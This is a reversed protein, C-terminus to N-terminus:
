RDRELPMMSRVSPVKFTVQGVEACILVTYCHADVLGNKSAEDFLSRTRRWSRARAYAAMIATYMAESALSLRRALSLTEETLSFNRDLLHAKPIEVLTYGDMAGREVGWELLQRSIQHHHRRRLATAMQCLSLALYSREAKAGQIFVLCERVQHVLCMVDHASQAYDLSHRFEQLAKLVANRKELVAKM